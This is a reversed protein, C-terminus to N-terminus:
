SPSRAERDSLASLHAVAARHELASPDFRNTADTVAEEIIRAADSWRHERVTTVPPSFGARCVAGLGEALGQTTPFLHLNAGVASRAKIERFVPQDIALVPKGRALGHMIPLGFGEYLSPFVVARAGRILSM